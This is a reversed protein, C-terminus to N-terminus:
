RDTTLLKLERVRDATTNLLCEDATMRASSGGEPDYYFRCNADRFKMWSRQAEVLAKKRNASLKSSLKNYHENLRVDQRKTEASICAIMEFTVGSAKELCTLYERTMERDAASTIGTSVFYVLGIAILRRTQEQRLRRRAVGTQRTASM